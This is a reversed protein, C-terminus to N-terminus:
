STPISYKLLMDELQNNKQILDKMVNIIDDDKTSPIEQTTKSKACTKKHRSLGQKYSYKKGCICLHHKKIKKNNQTCMHHSTHKESTLHKEYNYKKNSKFHCLECVYKFQNNQVNSHKDTKLHKEYNNKKNSKFDCIECYFKYMNNSQNQVTNKNYSIDNDIVINQTNDTNKQLTCKKKHRYLNQRNVYENGCVCIHIKKNVSNPNTLREHKKTNIHKEWLSKKHTSYQCKECHFRDKKDNPKVPDIPKNCSVDNNYSCCEITKDSNDVRLTIGDDISVGCEHIVQKFTLIIDHEDGQFYENGAIRSYKQTFCNKIKREICYHKNCNYILIIRTGKRYGCKIRENTNKSSCGIKYRNTGVLEAPQILYIIGM